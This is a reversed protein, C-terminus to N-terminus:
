QVESLLSGAGGVLVSVCAERVLFGKCGWGYRPVEVIFLFWLSGSYPFAVGFVAIYVPHLSLPIGLLYLFLIFPWWVLCFYNTVHEAYEDETLTKGEIIQFIAYSFLSFMDFAEPDAKFLKATSEQEMANATAHAFNHRTIKM